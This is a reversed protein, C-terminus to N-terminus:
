GVLTPKFSQKLISAVDGTDATKQSVARLLDGDCMEDLVMVAKQKMAAGAGFQASVFRAETENEGGRTSRDHDVYRTIANLVNWATGKNQDNVERNTQSYCRNLDSFQNMKRTSVDEPKADFPIELVTKFVKSIQEVALAHAAMADGMAKYASFGQLITALERGVQNADFRTNHRTKVLSRNGDAMAADFTNNCVIRVMSAKNVTAGSADFTSSMFVNARHRDGAVSMDEQFTATAWIIEGRKLSGAVDLKFRPDVKIYRDFWELVERPQVPKYVQSVTRPSLVHKTDSRILHYQNDVEVYAGNILAYAPSKDATWNLCAGDAWQDISWDDEVRRGLKHWPMEGRYAIAARGTSHDINHSM